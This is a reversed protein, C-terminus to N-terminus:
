KFNVIFPADAVVATLLTADVLVAIYPCRGTWCYRIRDVGASAATFPSAVDIGVASFRAGDIRTATYPPLM